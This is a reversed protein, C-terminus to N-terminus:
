EAPCASDDFGNCFVFDNDPAAPIAIGAGSDEYCWDLVTAPFGVPATTALHVWGYTLVATAENTFRVGLYGDVGAQWASTDGSFGMRTFLSDADVRDGGALVAYSDGASAVGAGNNSSSGWYFKLQLSPDTSVAAYPDFDFGPVAGESGANQGTVFNIYVGEDDQPVALNQATSCIAAALVSSPLLLLLAAALSLRSM